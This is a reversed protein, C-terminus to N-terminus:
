EWAGVQGNLDQLDAPKSYPKKIRPQHETTIRVDNSDNM